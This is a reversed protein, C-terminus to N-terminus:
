ILKIFYFAGIIIPLVGVVLTDSGSHSTKCDEPQLEHPIQKCIADMFPVTSAFDQTSNKNILVKPVTTVNASSSKNKYDQLLPNSETNNTACNTIETIVSSDINSNKGCLDIPVTKNPSNYGESLSCNVFKILRESDKIKNIGCAHVRDAVCEGERRCTFNLTQDANVTINGQAFPIFTVNIFKNLKNFTPMLQNSVFKVSDSCLAEYYVEIDVINKSVSNNTLSATETKDINEAPSLVVTPAPNAPMPNAPAPNVPAPNVPAPNVPAPAGSAASSAINTNAEVSVCQLAFAFVITLLVFTTRARNEM